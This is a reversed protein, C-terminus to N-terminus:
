AEPERFNIFAEQLRRRRERKLAKKPLSQAACVEPRILCVDAHSVAEKLATDYVGFCRLGEEEDLIARVAGVNAVVVGCYRRQPNRERDVEAKAEGAAHISRLSALKFRNVSLGKNFSDDFAAPLIGGDVPNIHIPSHIQRAVYETDTIRCTSFESAPEVEWALARGYNESLKKCKDKQHDPNSFFEICSSM